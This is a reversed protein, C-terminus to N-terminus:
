HPFAEGRIRVARSFHAGEIIKHQRLYKQMRWLSVKTIDLEKCARERWGGPVVGTPVGREDKEQNLLLWWVLRHAGRPLADSLLPSM